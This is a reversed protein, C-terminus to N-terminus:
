VQSKKYEKLVENKEIIERRSLLRAKIGFSVVLSMTDWTEKRIHLAMSITRYIIVYLYICLLLVHM